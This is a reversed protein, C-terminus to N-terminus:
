GKINGIRGLKRMSGNLIQLHKKLDVLIVKATVEFLAKASPDDMKNIDKLLHDNLM